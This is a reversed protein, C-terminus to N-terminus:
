SQLPCSHDYYYCGRGLGGVCFYDYACAYSVGCACCDFLHCHPDTLCHRYLYIVHSQADCFVGCLSSPGCFSADCFDVDRSLSKSFDSLIM